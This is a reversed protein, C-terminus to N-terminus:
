NWRCSVYNPSRKNLPNYQSLERDPSAAPMRLSFGLDFGSDIQSLFVGSGLRTLDAFSLTSHSLSLRQEARARPARMGRRASRPASGRRMGRAADGDACGRGMGTPAGEACGRSGRGDGWGSKHAETANTHPVGCVILAFGCLVREDCWRAARGRADAGLEGRTHRRPM